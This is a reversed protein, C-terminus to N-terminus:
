LIEEFIFHASSPKLAFTESVQVDHYDEGTSWDYLKQCDEDAFLFQCGNMLKSVQTKSLVDIAQRRLFCYRSLSNTM